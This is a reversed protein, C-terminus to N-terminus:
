VWCTRLNSQIGHEYSCKLRPVRSIRRQLLMKIMVGLGRVVHMPDPAYLVSGAPSGILIRNAPDELAIQGVYIAPFTPDLSHHPLTLPVHSLTLPSPLRVKTYPLYTAQLLADQDAALHERLHPSSTVCPASARFTGVTSKRPVGDESLFYSEHLTTGTTTDDVAAFHCSPLVYLLRGFVARAEPIDCLYMLLRPYLRVTGRNPLRAM